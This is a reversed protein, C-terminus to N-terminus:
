AFSGASCVNGIEGGYARVGMRHELLLLLGSGVEELHGGLLPQSAPADGQSDKGFLLTHGLRAGFWIGM